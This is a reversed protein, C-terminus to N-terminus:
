DNAVELWVLALSVVSGTLVSSAAIGAWSGPPITIMGGLHIFNDDAIEATLAATGVQGTPLFFNGANVVTGASYATCIPSPGGMSLNAVATAATTSTPAAPQGSNGTLGIAGAATAATTLGYGLALLYATVGRGGGVGSGNWLLPGAATSTYAALASASAYAAFVNGRGAFQANLFGSLM